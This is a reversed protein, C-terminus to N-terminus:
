GRRAERYALPRFDCPLYEGDEDLMDDGDGWDSADCRDSDENRVGHHLVCWDVGLDEVYQDAARLREIKDAAVVAFGRELLWAILDQAQVVMGPSYFGVESAIFEAITVIDDAM